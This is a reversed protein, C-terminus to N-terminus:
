RGAGSRPPKCDCSQPPGMGFRSSLCADLPMLRRVSTLPVAHAIGTIATAVAAGLEVAEVAQATGTGAHDAHLWLVVPLKM